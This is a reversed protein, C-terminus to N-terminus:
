SICPFSAYYFILKMVQLYFQFLLLSNLYLFYPSIIHRLFNQGHGFHQIVNLRIRFHLLVALAIQSTEALLREVIEHAGHQVVSVEGGLDSQGGLTLELADLLDLHGLAEALEQLLNQLLGADVLVLAGNDQGLVEGEVVDITQVLEECSGHILVHALACMAKIQQRLLVELCRDAHLIDICLRLLTSQQVGRSALGQTSVLGVHLGM